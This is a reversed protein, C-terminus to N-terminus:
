GGHLLQTREAATPELVILAGLPPGCRGLRAHMSLGDDHVTRLLLHSPRVGACGSTAEALATMLNSVGCPEPGAPLLLETLPHGVVFREHIGLLEETQHSIAVVRFEDDIVLFADTPAPAVEAVTELLLGFGCQSCVRELEDPEDGATGGRGCYACFWLHPEPKSDAVAFLRVRGM